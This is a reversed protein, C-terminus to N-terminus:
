LNSNQFLIAFYKIYKWAQADYSKKCTNMFDLYALKCRIVLLVNKYVKDCRLDIIKAKM